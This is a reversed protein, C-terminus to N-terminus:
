AANRLTGLETLRAFWPEDLLRAYLRLFEAVPNARTSQMERLLALTYDPRHLCRKLAMTLEFGDSYHWVSIKEPRVKARWTVNWCPELPRLGIEGVALSLALQEREWFKWERTSSEILAEYRITAEGCRRLQEGSAILLGGNISSPVHFNADILPPGAICRTLVALRAAYLDLPNPRAAIANPFPGPFSGRRVLLMDWDVCVIHKAGRLDKHAGLGPWKNLFRNEYQSDALRVTIGLSDALDALLTEDTGRRIITLRFDFPKACNAALSRRLLSAGIFQSVDPEITCVIFIM